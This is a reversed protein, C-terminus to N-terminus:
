GSTAVINSSVTFPDAAVPAGWLGTGDQPTITLGVVDGGRLSPSSFDAADTGAAEANVTWAFHLFVQDGDPDSVGSAMGTYTSSAYGKSSIAAAQISPPNGQSKNVTFTTTAQVYLVDDQL